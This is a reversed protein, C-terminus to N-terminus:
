GALAAKGAQQLSAPSRVESHLMHAAHEKPGGSTTAISSILLAATGFLRFIIVHLSSSGASHSALNPLAMVPSAAFMCAVPLQVPNFSIASRGVLGRQQWLRDGLRVILAEDGPSNGACAALIALHERWGALMLADAVTSGTNAGEDGPGRSGHPAQLM